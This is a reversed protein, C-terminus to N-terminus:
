RHAVAHPVQATLERWLVRAEHLSGMKRGTSHEVLTVAAVSQTREDGIPPVTKVDSQLQIPTATRLTLNHQPMSVVVGIAAVCHGGIAVAQSSMSPDLVVTVPGFVNSEGKVHLSTFRGVVASTKWDVGKEGFGFLPVARDSVLTGQLRVTDKGVGDIEYTEEITIEVTDIGADPVTFEKVPIPSM